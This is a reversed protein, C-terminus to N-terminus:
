TSSRSPLLVSRFLRYILYLFLLPFVVTQLTFVVILSIAHESVNEASDKYDNLMGDFDFKATM